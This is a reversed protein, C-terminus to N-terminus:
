QNRESETDDSYVPNQRLKKNIKADHQPVPMYLYPELRMKAKYSSSGSVYKRTLLTLMEDYNSAFANGESQWEYLTKDISAPTTHRFNYRMLDYYRKGEFCLECLREALVLKEMAEKSSYTNWKLADASNSPNLSRSNVCEVLNFAERLREDDADEALETLAEAYMLMVDAMRYLIYNQAFRSYDRSGDRKATSASYLPTASIMKRVDLQAESTNPNFVANAYRYDAANIFAPASKGAQGFVSSAAQVYGSGASSRYKYYYQCLSSNSNNRGDFQLELLSEDSNQSVYLSRYAQAGQTLPYDGEVKAGTGDNYSNQQWDALVKVCYDACAQYDSQSHTVAARWLYIDALIARIANRGILGTRQWGSYSYSDLADTEASALDDICNQLVEAPATQGIYLEQSSEMYADRYYPVDRYARVLYFYCLARLALMQSRDALYDGQTYNPDIEMVPEAKRLVINCNNIVKYLGQWNAFINDSQINAAEIELLDEPITGTITTVALLEDSRVDGWVILNDTVNAALMSRYAGTVMSAVDSKTQWFDEDITRDDPLLNTDVCSVCAALALVAAITKTKNTTM